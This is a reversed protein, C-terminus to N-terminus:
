RRALNRHSIKIWPQTIVVEPKLFCVDAMNPYYLTSWFIPANEFTYLQQIHRHMLTIGDVKTRYNGLVVLHIDESMTDDAKYCVYRGAHAKSANRIVLNCSDVFITSQIDYLSAHEPKLVCKQVIMDYATTSEPGHIVKAWSINHPWLPCTLAVTGGRLVLTKHDVAAVGTYFHSNNWYIPRVTCWCFYRSAVCCVSHRRTFIEWVPTPCPLACM